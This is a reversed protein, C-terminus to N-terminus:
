AARRRREDLALIMDAASRLSGFVVDVVKGNLEISWTDNSNAIAYGLVHDVWPRRVAYRDAAVKLADYSQNETLM